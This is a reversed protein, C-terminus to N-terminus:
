HKLYFSTSYLIWNFIYILMAIIVKTINKCHFYSTIEYKQYSVKYRNNTIIYTYDNWKSCGPDINIWYASMNLM